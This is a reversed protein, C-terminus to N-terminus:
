EVNWDKLWPVIDLFDQTNYPINVDIILDAVIGSLHKSTTSSYYNGNKAITGDALVQAIITNYSFLKNGFSRLNNASAIKGLLFAEKVQKNTM